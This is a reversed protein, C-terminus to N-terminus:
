VVVCRGEVVVVIVKEFVGVGGVDDVESYVVWGRGWVLLMSGVGLGLGVKWM